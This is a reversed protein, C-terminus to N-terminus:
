PLKLLHQIIARIQSPGVTRENTERNIKDQKKRKLHGPSALDM